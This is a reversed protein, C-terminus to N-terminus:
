EAFVCMILRSHFLGIRRHYASLSSDVISYYQMYTAYLNFHIRICNLSIAKWYFKNIRNSISSKSYCIGLSQHTLLVACMGIHRRSSRVADRNCSASEHQRCCERRSCEDVESADIYAVIRGDNTRTSIKSRKISAVTSVNRRGLGTLITFSTEVCKVCVHYRKLLRSLSDIIRSCMRRSIM